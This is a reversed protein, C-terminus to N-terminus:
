MQRCMTPWKLGSKKKVPEQEAVEAASDIDNYNSGTLSPWRNTITQESFEMKLLDYIADLSTKDMDSITELSKSVVSLEEDDLQAKSAFKQMFVDVVNWDASDSKALCEINVSDEVSSISPWKAECSKAIAPRSSVALLLDGIASATDDDLDGLQKMIMDVQEAQEESFAECSILEDLDNLEQGNERKVILFPLQSAPSDVFSVENLNINKLDRTKKKDKNFLNEFM